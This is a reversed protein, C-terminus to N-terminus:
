SSTSRSRSSGAARTCSCAVSRRRARRDGRAPGARRRDRGDIAMALAVVPLLLFSVVLALGIGSCTRGSGTSTPRPGRGSALAALCQTSRSTSRQRAAVVLVAPFGSPARASACSTSRPSRSRGPRARRPRARPRRRQLLRHPRGRARPARAAGALVGLVIAPRTSCSSSCCRARGRHPQLLRTVAPGGVTPLDVADPRGQELQWTVPHAWQTKTNPGTPGNNFSPAKQGWRGTFTLWEFGATRRTAPAGRGRPARVTGPASPTTAASARRGREERVVAGAHLLGRAVGPGPLGRRPRRRPAGQRRDVARDRLGRAARVRPQDADDDAGARGVARRILLQIMEWDGEHKDNWDNFVWFFWYQLVLTGPHDPDTTVGRTSRRRRAGAAVQDFWRTTTAGPHSRTAPCTSTGARRGQGRPREATPAAISVGGRAACCSTPSGSCRDGGADAPLARRGRLRRSSACSSSRRTSRCCSRRHRRDRRVASPAPVAVSARGRAPSSGRWAIPARRLM